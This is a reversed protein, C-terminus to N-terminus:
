IKLFKSLMVFAKLELFVVTITIKSISFAKILTQRSPVLYIIYFNDSYRLNKLSSNRSPERSDGKNNERDEYSMKEEAL